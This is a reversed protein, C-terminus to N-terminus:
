NFFGNEVYERIKKWKGNEKRFTETFLLKEGTMKGDLEFKVWFIAVGEQQKNVDVLVDEFSWKPNRGEFQGYAQKWGEKTEEYGWDSVEADPNAWRVKLQKSSNSSMQEANTSNWDERYKHLFAKFDKLLQEM